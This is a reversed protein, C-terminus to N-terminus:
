LRKERVKRITKEATQEGLQEQNRWHRGDGPYDMKQHRGPKVLLHSRQRQPNTKRRRHDYAFDSEVPSMAPRVLNRQQPAEMRDMVARFLQIPQDIRAGM